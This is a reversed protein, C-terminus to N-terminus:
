ELLEVVEDWREALDGFQSLDTDQREASLLSAKADGLATRIPLRIRPLLFLGGAYRQRRPSSVVQSM